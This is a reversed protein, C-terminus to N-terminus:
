KFVNTAFLDFISLILLSSAKKKKLKYEVRLSLHCRKHNHIVTRKETIKYNFCDCVM